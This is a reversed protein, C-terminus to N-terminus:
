APQAPEPVKPLYLDRVEEDTVDGPRIPRLSSDRISNHGFEHKRDTDWVPERCLGSRYPNISVCTFVYGLMVEQKGVYVALDGPKCHM